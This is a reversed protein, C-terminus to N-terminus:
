FAHLFYLDIYNFNYCIDYFFFLGYHNFEHEPSIDGNSLGNIPVCIDCFSEKRETVFECELCTTRLLSVGQFDDFMSTSSCSSSSSGSPISESEESLIANSTGNVVYIQKDDLFFPLEFTINIKYLFL